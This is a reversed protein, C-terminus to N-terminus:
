PLVAEPPRIKFLDVPVQATAVLVQKGKGTFITVKLWYDKGRLALCSHPKAPSHHLVFVWRTLRFPGNASRPKHREVGYFYGIM